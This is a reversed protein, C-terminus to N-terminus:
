TRNQVTSPGVKRWEESLRFLNPRNFLGGRQTREILGYTELQRLANAYTRKYMIKKMKEYTLSIDQAESSKCEAKLHVYAVRSANTLKEWAPSKLMEKLIAAFPPLKNKIRRRKAMAEGTPM